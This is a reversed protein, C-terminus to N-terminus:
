FCWCRRKKKRGIRALKSIGHLLTVGLLEKTADTHITSRDILWKIEDHVLSRKQGESLHTLDDAIDLGHTIADLINHAGVITGIRDILGKSISAM